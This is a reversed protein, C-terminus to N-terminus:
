RIYHDAKLLMNEKIVVDLTTSNILSHHLRIMNNLLDFGVGAKACACITEFSCVENLAETLLEANVLHRSAEQCRRTNVLASDLWVSKDNLTLPQLSILRASALVPDVINGFYRALLLELELREETTYREMCVEHVQRHHWTLCRNDREVVLSSMEERLRLWAHEPLRRINPSSYQFVHDLVADSMSLLDIMENDTIGAVSFSILGVAVRSFISGFNREISDFIQNVLGSVTPSLILDPGSKASRWTQLVNAALSLYIATPEAEISAMAVRWQEDTLSRHRQDLLGTLVVRAENNDDVCSLGSLVLRPIGADIARTDCGFMIASSQDSSGYMDALSSLVIVSDKHSVLGDLFSLNSRERYDNSLQDMGDIFLLVPYKALLEHLRGVAVDYENNQEVTSESHSCEHYDGFLYELQGVLSKVLSLGDSSERSTGCFRIILPMSQHAKEQALLLALQSMCASKGSGPGGTVFLSVAGYQAVPTSEQTRRNLQWQKVIAICQGLVAERGVFSSCKGRMWEVHHLIEDAKKGAMGLGEGDQAWRERRDMVLQLEERLMSTTDIEWQQLYPASKNEDLYTQVSMDHYRKVKGSGELLGEMDCKLAKLLRKTEDDHADNLLCRPDDAKTVGGAFSRYIWRARSVSIADRMACYLEWETVSRGTLLNSQSDDDGNDMEFSVGTLLERIAPIANSWFDDDNLVMLHKLAYVPPKCNTDLIYWKEVLEKVDTSASVLRADMITKNITKPIPRYGYKDGQLSLFFLGGSEQRCRELERKCSVWTMHDLTNEDRVGWRVFLGDIIKM